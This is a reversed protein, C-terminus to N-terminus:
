SSTLKDSASPTLGTRDLVDDSLLLVGFLLIGTNCGLDGLGTLDDLSSMLLEDRMGIM